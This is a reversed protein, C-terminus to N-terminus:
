TSECHYKPPPGAMRHHRRRRDAETFPNPLPLSLSSAFIGGAGGTEFGLLRTKRQSIFTAATRPRTRHLYSPPSLPPAHASTGEAANFRQPKQAPPRPSTILKQTSNCNTDFLLCSNIGVTVTNEDRNHNCRPICTKIKLAFSMRTRRGRRQAEREKMEKRSLHLFSLLFSSNWNVRHRKAKIKNSMVRIFADLTSSSETTTAIKAETAVDCTSSFSPLSDRFLINSAFFSRSLLKRKNEIAPSPTAVM